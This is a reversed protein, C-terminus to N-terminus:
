SLIIPPRYLSDIFESSYLEERLHFDSAFPSFLTRFSVVNQIEFYSSHQLHHDIDQHDNTNKRDPIKKPLESNINSHDFDEENPLERNFSMEEDKGHQNKYDYQTYEHGALYTHVDKHPSHHSSDGHEHAYSYGFISVQFIAFIMVTVIINKARIM